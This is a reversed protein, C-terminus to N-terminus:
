VHLEKGNAVRARIIDLIAAEVEAASLGTSDLYVADPAQVLPSEERGRDRRDRDAIQRVLDAPVPVGKQELERARRGARVQTDADLFIKVDADPFVVTGIDRGEMVVSREGAIRRQQAVMAHRVGAFQSVQSAAEGIEPTCIASTVDEGDLTIREGALELQAAAALDALGDPDALDVNRRIAALAIARYMAGTDIYTCGIHAAVARAMTSKGAGAPGDIAIVFHKAM